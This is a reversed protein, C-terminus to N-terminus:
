TPGLSLVPLHFDLKNSLGALIEGDKVMQEDHEQQDDCVNCTIFGPVFM